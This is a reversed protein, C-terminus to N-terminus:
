FKWPVFQRYYIEQMMHWFSPYRTAGGEKRWYWAEWEGNKNKALPNLFYYDNGDNSGIELAAQLHASRIIDSDQTSYDFYEEDPMSEAEESFYEKLYFDGGGRWDIRDASWLEMFDEHMYPWGNTVQLFQRYSPPLRTGLKQEVEVIQAESLGPLGMWQKEKADEPMTDFNYYNYEDFLSSRFFEKSWQKLFPYWNYFLGKQEHSYTPELLLVATTEKFKQYVDQMMEWFSPYYFSIYMKVDEGEGGWTSWHAEWEDGSSNLDLEYVHSDRWSNNSGVYFEALERYKSVHNVNEISEEVSCFVNTDNFNFSGWGNATLLFQRYSPPLSKEILAELQALQAETAGSDLQVSPLNYYNYHIHYKFLSDVANRDKAWQELFEKWNYKVM